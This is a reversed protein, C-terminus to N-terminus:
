KSDPRHVFDSFGTIRHDTVTKEKAVQALTGFSRKEGEIFNDTTSDSFHPRNESEQLIKNEITM